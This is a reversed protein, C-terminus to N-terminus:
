SSEDRRDAADGHVLRLTPRPMDIGFGDAIARDLRLQKQKAGDQCSQPMGACALFKDGTSPDTLIEVRRRLELWGDFGANRGPVHPRHDTDCLACVPATWGHESLLADLARDQNM